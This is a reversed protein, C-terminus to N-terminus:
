DPVGTVTVSQGQPIEVSKKLTKGMKVWNFGIVQTGSQVPLSFIPADDIVEGNISIKCNSPNAKVTLTGM